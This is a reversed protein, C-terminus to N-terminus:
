LDNELSNLDVRAQWVNVCEECKESAKRIAKYAPHKKCGKALIELLEIQKELKRHIM